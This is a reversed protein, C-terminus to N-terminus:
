KWWAHFIYRGDSGTVSAGRQYKNFVKTKHLEEYPVREISRISGRGEIRM